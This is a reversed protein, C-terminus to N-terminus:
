KARDSPGSRPRPCPGPYPAGWLGSGGPTRLWAAREPGRLRCRPSRPSLRAARSPCRAGAQGWGRGRRGPGAAGGRVSRGVSRGARGAAACAGGRTGGRARRAAVACAHRRWPAATFRRLRPAAPAATLPLGGAARPMTPGISSTFHRVERVFTPPRQRRLATGAAPGDRAPHRRAGLGSGPGAIRGCLRRRARAREPFRGRGAAEGHGPGEPALPRVFPAGPRASASGAAGAGRQPPRHRAASAPASAPIAAPEPGAPWPAAAPRQAAGPGELRQTDRGTWNTKPTMTQLKLATTLKEKVGM